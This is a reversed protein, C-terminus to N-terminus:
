FICVSLLMIFCDWAVGSIKIEEGWELLEKVSLNLGLFALMIGRKPQRFLTPVLFSSSLDWIWSMMICWNAEPSTPDRWKRSVLGSNFVFYLYFEKKNRRNKKNEQFVFMDWFFLVCRCFVVASNSSLFTFYRFITETAQVRGENANKRFQQARPLCFSARGIVIMCLILGTGHSGLVRTCGAFTNYLKYWPTFYNKTLIHPCFKERFM